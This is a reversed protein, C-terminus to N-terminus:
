ASAELPLRIRIRTGQGPNSHIEIDGGIMGVREQMGLLGLAKGSAAREMTEGVNFGKGDDEVSLDLGGGNRQVSVEVTQAGAHRIVNTVAEQVVRFATIPVDAPLPGVEEEGHLLISLGTREAASELYGGLAPVLGLEDILPPRLDLSIDRIRQVLRDVLDVTDEIKRAVQEPEKQQSLLQLNIIVATLSPGMEDHLERAIRKREDEKAAELRRTLRRLRQYAADLDQRAKERQRHLEVLERNRKELVSTRRRHAAFALAVVCAAVLFRFPWTMWFPPVVLIQLPVAAESWVGQSNRGRIRLDHTGPQLTTFTIERRGGIEIWEDELRYAYRHELEPSYDLVALDISLWTGYPLELHEPARGPRRGPVDGSATRVSRVVVPSPAPLEFDTGAPLAVLGRVSGFCLLSRGRAASGAEFEASPLGDSVFLNTFAKLEPHYRSLGNRTSVWLSGDDDELIGTVDDDILGERETVRDFDIREGDGRVIRNLGGGATGVWLRGSSDELLATVYHHGISTPDGAVPLFRRARGTAPEVENLGGSRTGVWLGGRRDELLATVYDDSLSSPDGADHTLRQVVSGDADLRQLGGEGTGVWMRGRSDELLATVYGPGLSAPDDPDHAWSRTAGGDPDMRLLGANTGAWIRGDRDEALDLLIRSVGGEGGRLITDYGGSAPDLRTLYGTRTGIWIRERRDRLMTTVDRDPVDPPPFSAEGPGGFRQSAHSVRNLGGGWTGVWLAGARDALLAIIVNDSLSGRRNPDRRSTRFRGSATDLDAVGGGHTGVWIHGRVGPALVTVLNYPLADPDGAREKFTTFEGSEPDMRSLGDLTGVWLGGQEDELLTSVRDDPLSRPNAPDHRFVEFRGREENWLQLGGGLTGVWLRGARDEYLTLIYDNVLREPGAANIRVWRDAGPDLRNLGKQTGVWLRGRRDRLVAYVSDHSLSGPDASDHRYAVFSRTTPDFRDLGGTNTGFWLTGDGDEYITRITNDSLSGPDTPDHQFTTYDHGDFLTLGNRSGIWIFGDHDQRLATIVAPPPGGETGIREFHLAPGTEAVAATAACLLLPALRALHRAWTGRRPRCRRDFV